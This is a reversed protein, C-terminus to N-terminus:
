MRHRCRRNSPPSSASYAVQKTGICVCGVAMLRNALKFASESLQTRSRIGLMYIDALTGALDNGSLAYDLRRLNSYEPTACLIL